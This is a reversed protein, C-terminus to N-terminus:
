KPSFLKFPPKYRADSTNLYVYPAVRTRSFEAALKLTDKDVEEESNLTLSKVKYNDQLVEMVEKVSKCDRFNLELSELHTANKCYEILESFVNEDQILIEVRLESIKLDVLSNFFGNLDEENYSAQLAKPLTIKKLYGVTSSRDLAIRHPYRVM